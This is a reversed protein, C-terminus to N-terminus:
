TFCDFCLVFKNSQLSNQQERKLCSKLNLTVSISQSDVWCMTEWKLYDKVEQSGMGFIRLCM